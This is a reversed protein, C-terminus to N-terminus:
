QMPLALQRLGHAIAVVHECYGAAVAKEIKAFIERDEGNPTYNDQAYGGLLVIITKGPKVYTAGAKISQLGRIFSKTSFDVVKAAFNPYTTVTGTYGDYKISLGFPYSATSVQSSTVLRSFSNIAWDGSPAGNRLDLPLLLRLSNVLLCCEGMGGWSTGSQAYTSFHIVGLKVDEVLNNITRVRLYYGDPKFKLDFQQAHNNRLIPQTSKTVLKSWGLVFPLSFDANKKSGGSCEIM